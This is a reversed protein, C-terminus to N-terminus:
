AEQIKYLEVRLFVWSLWYMSSTNTPPFPYNSSQPVRNQDYLIHAIEVYEPISQELSFLFHMVHKKHHAKNKRKILQKIAILLGPVTCQKSNWNLPSGREARLLLNEANWQHSMYITGRLGFEPLTMWCLANSRHGTSCSCIIHVM